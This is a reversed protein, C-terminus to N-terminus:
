NGACGGRRPRAWVAARSHPRAIADDGIVEPNLLINQPKQDIMIAVHGHNRRLRGGFVHQREFGVAYKEGVAGTIRLGAGVGDCVNALERAANRNEADAEAVLKASQSEAPAGELQFETMVTGIM